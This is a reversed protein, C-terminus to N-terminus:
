ARGTMAAAVCQSAADREDVSGDAWGCADTGHRMASDPMGCACPRPEECRCSECDCVGAAGVKFPSTM